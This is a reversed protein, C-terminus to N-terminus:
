RHAPEHKDSYACELREMLVHASLSLFCPVCALM